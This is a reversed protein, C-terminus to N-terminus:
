AQRPLLITMGMDTITLFKFQSFDILADVDIVDSNQVM